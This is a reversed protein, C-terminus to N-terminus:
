FPKPPPLGLNAGRELRDMIATGLGESLVAEVLLVEVGAEEAEHLSSFLNHAYDTLHTMVKKYIPNATGETPTPNEKQLTITGLRKGSLLWQDLIAKWQDPAVLIMKLNPAYHAHKLGPSGGAKEQKSYPTVSGIVSAIADKTISGPRLIRPPNATLDLVTSELGITCPGGDLIMDVDKGLAKQVHNASTPSIRGSRNASPAAIPEGLADILSLAMPHNPM